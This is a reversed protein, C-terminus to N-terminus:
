FTTGALYIDGLGTSFLPVLNTAPSLFAVTHGDGSVAPHLSVNNALAGDSSVSVLVTAPTCTPSTTAALCTNRVFADEFGNTDGSVLNTALSSFAIFQAEGASSTANSISPQESLANGPQGNIESVSILTTSKTCGSIDAGCTDTLYIQQVGSSAAQVLNTAASAFAVYRGDFTISSESSASNAPTIENSSSVLINSTACTTLESICTSNLYVQTVSPTVGNVLNTAASTYSVYLGGNAVSPQTAASNAPTVGDSSSVLVTVPVCGTATEDLCTDRLYVQSVGGPNVGTILNTATSVFAVYRGDSSVAPQTADANAPSLGDAAVSVLSTAGTTCTSTTSGSSTSGACGTHLFVQRTSGNISPFNPDLNTAYSSFAVNVGSSDMSPELSAANGQSGAVNNSNASGSVSALETSPTCTTQAFCTDRIFVDSAGNTDNNILNSALSAFAVFRGDSSLRPGSANIDPVGNNPALGLFSYDVLEPLGTYTPRDSTNVPVIGNVAFLVATSVGGGPSPNQVTIQYVGAQTLDQINLTAAISTNSTYTTPRPLGGILVVSAPTFGSGTVTLAQSTGGAAVGTPSLTDVFPVAYTLVLPLTGSSGGGPAPNLVGINLTGASTLDTASLTVLLQTSNVYATSRNDGNITVTSLPVFNTGNVYLTFGPSGALGTSPSLSTITPIPSTGPKITFTLQNSTGGGPAPTQVEVIIPGPVTILEASIVAQLQHNNIFQSTLASGNWFVESQPALGNGNVTLTFGSSQAKISSPSLSTLSPSPNNVIGGCAPLLVAMAMLVWIARSNKGYSKKAHL